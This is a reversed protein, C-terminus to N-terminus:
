SIKPTGYLYHDHNKAFDSIGTDVSINKIDLRDWPDDKDPLDKGIEYYIGKKIFINEIRKIILLAIKEDPLIEPFKIMLQM